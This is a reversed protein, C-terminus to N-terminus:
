LGRVILIGSVMLLLGTVGVGLAVALFMPLFYVGAMTVAALLALMGGLWMVASTAERRMRRAELIRGRALVVDNKTPEQRLM